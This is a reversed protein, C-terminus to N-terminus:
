RAELSQSRSRAPGGRDGRAAAGGDHPDVARRAARGGPGPQPGPRARLLRRRAAPDPGAATRARVLEHVGLRLALALCRQEGQSAHTRAERGDLELLSTTATRGSRTSAGGCTTAGALGGARRAPRRGLEAPLATGGDVPGTRRGPWAATRRRWSPSSTAGGAAGAGRRAGQRRRGAAPGVRRADDGRGGSVRGGSQRLLAARQRLVRETEDAARAGEADLLALADDLLDRRGKPGGSVLALDEPSFITCPAAARWSRAPRQGGQPEGPHPQARGPPDGGGGPDPQRPRDLEARVIASTRARHAGPGRATRRPLLAPDRPLGAGRARQDERDREVRHHGDDGRAGPRRQAARFIRFDALELHRVSVAVAPGSLLGAGADPPLPVGRGRRRAGHRGAVRGGDRRDGRRRRGGRGRRHPVVPQVRHRPGRRTYDGDVTEAADGVDQSQVSLDVGGQRM